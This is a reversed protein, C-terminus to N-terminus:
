YLRDELSYVSPHRQNRPGRHHLKVLASYHIEPSIYHDDWLEHMGATIPIVPATFYVKMIEPKAKICDLVRLCNLGDCFQDIEAKCRLVHSITLAKVIVPKMSIDLTNAM